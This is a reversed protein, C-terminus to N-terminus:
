IADGQTERTLLPLGVTRPRLAALRNGLTRMARHHRVRAANESLNLQRGIQAFSQEEEFYRLRIIVQDVDALEALAEYVQGSVIATTAPDDDSDIPGQQAVEALAQAGTWEGRREDTLANRALTFVWAEFSGPSQPKFRDLKLWVDSVCSVALAESESESVGRRLFYRWLRPSFEQSFDRVAAEDLQAMRLALNDIEDTTV